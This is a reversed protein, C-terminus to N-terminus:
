CSTCSIFSKLQLMPHLASVDDCANLHFHMNGPPVIGAPLFHQLSFLKAARECLWAPTSLHFIHGRSYRTDGISTDRSSSCMLSTKSLPEGASRWRRVATAKQSMALVMVGGSTMWSRSDVFLIPRARLLIAMKMDGFACHGLQFQKSPGSEAHVNM